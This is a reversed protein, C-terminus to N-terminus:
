ASLFNALEPTFHSAAEINSLHAAHFEAFRAGPIKEALFRGDAPPTALDHSGAIILTPLAISALNARADFERLAACCNAYGEPNTSELMSKTKAIVGPHIAAFDPTFWRGIVAASVDKMGRALVADIRANWSDPTGIKAGTNCLILKQIRHTAHLGLWIGIQGGMSLGCFHVRDLHLADLLHLVDSALLEISYPGPPISSQGHGRTDYRLLRFRSSLAALQPDWMSFNAGLSNSLVLVPASDPGALSYHIRVDTLDAFPM